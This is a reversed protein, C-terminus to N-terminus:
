LFLSSRYFERCFWPLHNTWGAGCASDWNTWFASFFFFFFASFCPSHERSAGPSVSALRTKDESGETEMNTMWNHGTRQSGMSQLWGPEETWPKKWALISSHTAMGKELSDKRGLSRVRTEQVPVWYESKKGVRWVMRRFLHLLHVWALTYIVESSINADLLVCLGLLSEPSAPDSVKGLGDAIM